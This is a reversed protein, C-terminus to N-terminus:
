SLSISAGVTRETGRSRAVGGHGTGVDEVHEGRAPLHAGKVDVHGCVGAPLHDHGIAIDADVRNSRHGLVRDKRAARLAHGMGADENAATVRQQGGVHQFHGSGRHDLWEHNGHHGVRATGVGGSRGQHGADVCLQELVMASAQRPPTHHHQAAQPRHTANGPDNRRLGPSRHRQRAAAALGHGLGRGILRPSSEAHRQFANRRGIGRGHLGGDGVRIHHQAAGCGAHLHQTGRLQGMGALELNRGVDVGHRGFANGTHAHHVIAHRQRVGCGDADTRQRDAVHLVLGLM